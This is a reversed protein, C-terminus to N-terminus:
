VKLYSKEAYELLYAINEMVEYQRRVTKGRMQTKNESDETVEYLKKVTERYKQM